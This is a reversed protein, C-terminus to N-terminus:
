ESEHESAANESGTGMGEASMASSGGGTTSGGGRKRGGGSTGIRKMAKEILKEMRDFRDEDDDGAVDDVPWQAAQSTSGGFRRIMDVTTVNASAPELVQVGGAVGMDGEGFECPEDLKLSEAFKEWRWNPVSPMAEVVIKGRNLRAFGVMDQYTTAYSCNLQAILLNLLFIITVLIYFFVGVLLAPEKHLAEFHEGGFMGFTIELLTYASHFIGDFDYNKQDLASFSCAFTVIFFFLGFLFLGVESIVRFCILVFASVRTSFVSLDMLLLFYLVMGIMAMVSYSFRVGDAQPCAATFLGTHGKSGEDEHGLCRIVPETAMMGILLLTLVLSTSDQWRMLYGPIPIHAIKVFDRDRCDRLFHKVHFFLMQGMSCLYVFCLCIFVIIRGTDTSAVGKADGRDKLGATAVIFIILTLILWSKGFLFTRFAIRGFVIDTVMALVPHCVLKPDGNDTTWEITESFKGEADMVLHKIYYNVRRMGNETTRSRWILGDLLTPMLAPADMCLRKIIDPHREFLIDMGYYYRDRDARIILLDVIMAKAAELSGTEIAWLMPSISQTGVQINLM